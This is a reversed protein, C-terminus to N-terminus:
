FPRVTLSCPIKPLPTNDRISNLSSNFFKRAISIRLDNNYDVGCEREMLKRCLIMRDYQEKNM